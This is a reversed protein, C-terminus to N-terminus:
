QPRVLKYVIVKASQVPVDEPWHYAVVARGDAAVKRADDLRPLRTHNDEAYSRDDLVAYTVVPNPPDPPVYYLTRWSYWDAWCFPDIVADEPKANEALWQGAHKHGVRHAHLPKLTTPLAAAVVVALLVAPTYKGCCIRGLAPVRALVAALPELAAAAFVCGVLVILVTHRESVYGRATGLVVLLAFNLGALVALLALGPEAAIRRRYVVLGFAALAASLYYLGKGTERAAVKLGFWPRFTGADTAPNWWDAFVPGGVAAPAPTIPGSQGRFAPGTPASTPDLFQKATPKNTFRGILAIYPTAVLLFGIALATLWGATLNRPWRRTFGMWAAVAAVAVGVIGGEPRVLYAAGVSLGCLLFSGIKPRRVARVGFFLGVAAPLLYAAESLADSTIRATVPLVQFLLAAAFGVNRSFLTRGLFYVPVVLLVGAIASAVQASILMSEPLPVGAVNRVVKGTLWIAIPYGPPQEAAKIVEIPSRTQDWVESVAHPSQIGLAYRAFGIGDRATVATHAILWAHVAVAVAALIALRLYDPGFLSRRPAVVELRGGVIAGM